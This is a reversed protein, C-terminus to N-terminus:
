GARLSGHVRRWKIFPHTHRQHSAILSDDSRSRATHTSPRDPTFVYGPEGDTQSLLPPPFPLLPSVSVSLCLSLSLRRRRDVAFKQSIVSTLSPNTTPNSPSANLCNQLRIMAFRRIKLGQNYLALRRSRLIPTIIYFDHSVSADSADKVRDSPDFNTLSTSPLFFFFYLCVFCCVVFCSAATGSLPFVSPFFTSSVHRRRRRWTSGARRPTVDVVFPRRHPSLSPSFVRM